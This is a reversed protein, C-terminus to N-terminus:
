NGEIRVGGVKFLVVVVIVVFVVVVVVVVYLPNRSIQWLTAEFNTVNQQM